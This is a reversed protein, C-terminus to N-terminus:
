LKSVESDKKKKDKLKEAASLTPKERNPLRKRLSYDRYSVTKKDDANQDEKKPQLLLMEGELAPFPHAMLLYKAELKEIKADKPIGVM